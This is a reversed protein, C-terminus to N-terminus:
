HTPCTWLISPVRIELFTSLALNPPTLYTPFGPISKIPALTYFSTLVVM